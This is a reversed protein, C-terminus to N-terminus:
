QVRLNIITANQILVNNGSNQVATAFGAAGAFSGDARRLQRAVAIGWKRTIRSQVPESVVMGEHSKTELFYDRDAISVTAAGAPLGFGVIGQEDAIRIADVQPLLSRQEALSQEIEARGDARTADVARVRLAVTALANDFQKLEAGLEIALSNALNESSERARVEESERGAQLAVVAALVLVLIVVANGAVLALALRRLPLAVSRAPLSPDTM